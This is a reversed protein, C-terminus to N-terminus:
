GPFAAIGGNGLSPITKELTQRATEAATLDVIKLEALREALLRLPRRPRGKPPEGGTSCKSGLSSIGGQRRPRGKPPEGGSGAVPQADGAGDLRRPRRNKQEKREPRGGTGRWSAASACTGSPTWTSASTRRSRGARSRRGDPTARDATLLVHAPRQRERSSRGCALPELLARGGGDLTVEHKRAGAM